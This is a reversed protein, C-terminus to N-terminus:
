IRQCTYRVERIHRLPFESGMVLHSLGYKEAVDDLTYSSDTLRSIEFRFRGEGAGRELIQGVSGGGLGQFVYDNPPAAECFAALEAAAVPRCQLGSHRTRHDAISCNIWVPVGGESLARFFGAHAPDDLQWNHLYPYVIAGAFGDKLYRIVSRWNHTRPNMTALPAVRGAHGAAALFRNNARELDQRYLSDFDGTYAKEIGTEALLADLEDPTVWPGQYFPWRGCFCFHDETFDPLGDTPRLEGSQAPPIDKLKFVRAANKGLILEKEADTIDALTVKALQSAQTRGVLDSGFLVREAGIDGALAEVLGREPYYGCVDVHANPLRDRLTGISHRWNGGSHAAVLDTDPCREALTAFEQLTIQAGGPSGTVQWTHILVGLGRDGAYCLFKAASDLSGDEQKLSCWLKIGVAGEEVYQDLQDQWNANQPNMYALWQGLGGSRAVFDRAEQNSYRVEDEDPFESIRGGISVLALAVNNIGCQRAVEPLVDKRARSPLAHVHVDIIM